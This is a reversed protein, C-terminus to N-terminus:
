KKEEEEEDADKQTNLFSRAENVSKFQMDPSVNALSKVKGKERYNLSNSCLASYAHVMGDRSHQTAMTNVSRIGMATAEDWASAEAGIFQFAWKEEKELKAILALVQDKTFEKKCNEEGDTIVVGLVREPREELATKMIRNSTENLTTGVTHILPTNGAPTYIDMGLVPIDKINKGDYIKKIKFSNFVVLTMLCQGDAKKQEELFTNFGEITAERVVGM